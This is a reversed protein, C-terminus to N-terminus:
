NLPITVMHRIMMTPNIVLKRILNNPFLFPHNILPITQIMQAKIRMAKKKLPSFTSVSDNPFEMLPNVIELASTPHMMPPDRPPYM